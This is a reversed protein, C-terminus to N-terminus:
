SLLHSCSSVASFYVDRSPSLFENGNSVSEKEAPQTILSSTQVFLVHGVSGTLLGSEYVPNSNAVMESSVSKICDTMGKTM